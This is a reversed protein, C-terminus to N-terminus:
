RPESHPSLQLINRIHLTKNEGKSSNHFLLQQLPLIHYRLNKQLQRQSHLREVTGDMSGPWNSETVVEGLSLPALLLVQMRPQGNVHCRKESAKFSRLIGLGSQLDPRNYEDHNELESSAVYNLRFNSINRNFSSFDRICRSEVM